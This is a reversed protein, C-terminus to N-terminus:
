AVSRHVVEINKLWDQNKETEQQGYKGYQSDLSLAFVAGGGDRLPRRLLHRSM